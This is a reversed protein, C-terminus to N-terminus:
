QMNKLHKALFPFAAFRIFGALFGFCWAILVFFFWLCGLIVLLAM